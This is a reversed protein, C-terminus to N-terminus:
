RVIFRTGPAPPDCPPGAFCQAIAMWRTAVEGEVRLRTDALARTQTVVQCFETASGEVREGEVDGNWQWRAGSPAELRVCPVTAPVELGRNRFAFAFTMVGLLAINQIRDDDRREVGLLDYIEQGHAWTEMLRATISSRASMDSGAWPVRTRPSAAAFHLAVEPYFDAWLEFVARNRAGGLRDDTTRRPTRAHASQGSLDGVFAAYADRDRLSLLALQDAVHLHAVVDHITYGKFQTTREFDADTLPLLLEKLADCEARFDAPQQFM